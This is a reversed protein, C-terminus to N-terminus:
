AGRSGQEGESEVSKLTEVILGVSLLELIQEDSFNVGFEEELALILNMHRLSDWEKITDPSSEDTIQELPVGMVQSVVKFVRQSRHNPNM